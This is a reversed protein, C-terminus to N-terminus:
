RHKLWSYDSSRRTCSDISVVTISFILFASVQYIVAVAQDVIRFSGRDHKIPKEWLADDLLQKLSQNIDNM